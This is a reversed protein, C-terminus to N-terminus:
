HFRQSNHITHCGFYQLLTIFSNQFRLSCRFLAFRVATHILVIHLQKNSPIISNYSEVCKVWLTDNLNSVLLIHCWSNRAYKQLSHVGKITMNSEKWWKVATPETETKRPQSLHIYNLANNCLFRLLLILSATLTHENSMDRCGTCPFLLFRPNDFTTEKALRKDVGIRGTLFIPAEKWTQWSTYNKLGM